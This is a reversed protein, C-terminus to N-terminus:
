KWEPDLNLDIVHHSIVGFSVHIFGVLDGGCNDCTGVPTKRPKGIPRQLVVANGCTPCDKHWKEVYTIEYNNM